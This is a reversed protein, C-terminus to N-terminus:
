DASRASGSSLASLASVGSVRKGGMMIGGSIPIPIYELALTSAGRLAVGESYAFKNHVRWHLKAISLMVIADGLVVKVLLPM